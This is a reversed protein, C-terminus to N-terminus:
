RQRRVTVNTRNLGNSNLPPNITFVTGVGYDGGHSTTGYLNGAQDMILAEEPQLGDSPPGKFSYLVTENRAPDLKFVTGGGFAGGWATTGYLNGAQDMILAPDFGVHGGPFLGDGPYGPFSHLETYNALLDLQFVNGCCGGLATTTGYLNSAEDMIVASARGVAGGSFSHLVTFSQAKASPTSVLGLGIAAALAALAATAKRLRIRSIRVEAIKTM